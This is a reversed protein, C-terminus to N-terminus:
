IIARLHSILIKINCSGELSNFPFRKTERYFGGNKEHFSGDRKMFQGWWDCGSGTATTQEKHVWGGPFLELFPPFSNLWSKCCIIKTEPLKAHIDGAMILLEGARSKMDYFPSEPMCANAIHFGVAEPRTEEEWAFCGFVQADPIQYTSYGEPIWPWKSIDRTIAPEAHPWLLEYFTDEFLLPDNYSSDFHECVQNVLSSWSPDKNNTGDWMDTLRYIHTESDLLQPISKGACANNYVYVAGLRLMGKVYDERAEYLLKPFQGSSKM